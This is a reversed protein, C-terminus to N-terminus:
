CAGELAYDGARGLAARVQADALKETGVVRVPSLSGPVVDVQVSRVGALTQLERTVATVCHGCTMGTVLYTVQVPAPEAVGTSASGVAKTSCCACSSEELVNDQESTQTTASGCM